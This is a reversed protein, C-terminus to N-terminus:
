YCREKARAAAEPSKMFAQDAQRTTHAIAPNRRAEDKRGVSLHVSQVLGAAALRECLGLPDEFGQGHVVDWTVYPIDHRQAAARIDEISSSETLKWVNFHEPKPQFTNVLFPAYVPGDEGEKPYPQARTYNIPRGQRFTPYLVSLLKHGTARQIHRMDQMSQRWRPFPLAWIGSDSTEDRFSQHVSHVLRKAAQSAYTSKPPPGDLLAGVLDRGFHGTPGRGEMPERGRDYAEWARGQSIIQHVFPSAVPTIQTGDAGVRTLYDELARVGGAFILSLPLSLNSEVVAIPPLPASGTNGPM